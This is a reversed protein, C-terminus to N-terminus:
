EVDPLRAKILSSHTSRLHELAPASIAIIQVLKVGQSDFQAPKGVFEISLGLRVLTDQDYSFLPADRTVGSDPMMGLITVVADVGVKAFFVLEAAQWRRLSELHESNGQVGGFPVYLDQYAGGHWGMLSDKEVVVSKGAPVIYNACSSACINRVIVSLGHDFVLTGMEIAAMADGGGSTIVLESIADRQKNFLSDFASVGAETLPGSYFIQNPAIFRVEAESSM